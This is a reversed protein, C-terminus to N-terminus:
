TSFGSSLSIFLILFGLQLYSFYEIPTFLHKIDFLCSFLSKIFSGYCNKFFIFTFLIRSFDQSPCTNSLASASRDPFYIHLFHPQESSAVHILPYLRPISCVFASASFYLNARKATILFLLTNGFPNIRPFDAVSIFLIDLSVISSTKFLRSKSFIRLHYSPFLPSPQHKQFIYSINM